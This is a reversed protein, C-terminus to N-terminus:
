LKVPSGDDQQGDPQKAVYRKYATEEIARVDKLTWARTEDPTHKQGARLHLAHNFKLRGPYHTVGLPLQAPKDMPDDPDLGPHTGKAFRTVKNAYALGSGGGYRNAALDD